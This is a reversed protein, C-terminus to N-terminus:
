ALRPAVRAQVEASTLVPLVEFRVIDDWHSMWEDLLARDDTEMVQYCTGLDESIWSGVYKVGDSMMRGKERFRRYVPVPDGGAYREIVMYLM